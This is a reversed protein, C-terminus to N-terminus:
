PPGGLNIRNVTMRGTRTFGLVMSDWALRERDWRAPMRGLGEPLPTTLDGNVDSDGALDVGYVDVERATGDGPLYWCCALGTLGGHKCLMPRGRMNGATRIRIHPGMAPPPPTEEDYLIRGAETDEAFLSYIRGESFRRENVWQLLLHTTFIRPTDHVRPRYHEYAEPSSFAWWSCPWITPVSNVGVVERYMGPAYFTRCASPGESVLAIKM